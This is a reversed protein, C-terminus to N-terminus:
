FESLRFGLKGFYFTSFSSKSLDKLDIIVVVSASFM